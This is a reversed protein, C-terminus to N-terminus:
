SPFSVNQWQVVGARPSPSESPPPDRADLGGGALEHVLRAVGPDDPALRQARLAAKRAEDLRGRAREARAIGVLPEVLRPALRRAKRYAKLAEAPSGSALELDGLSILTYPSAERSDAAAMAARAESLRGTEFHLLALNQLVPPSGPEVALGSRFASLAEAANGQRWRVLGLNAWLGSLHPALRVAVELDARAGALDGSRLKEVGHNSARIGAVDVDDLPLLEAAPDPGLGWFDYVQSVNGLRRVAVMHSYVVVFEGIKESAPRRKVLSAYLGVGLSRGMAIFLNTFSVCNGRRELFAEAATFTGGTENEFRFERRDVLAQQLRALKEAPGGSGALRQAMQAIEPTAAMPNPVDAPAVGRAAVLEAWGVASATYGSPRAVTCAALAAALSGGLVARVMRGPRKM